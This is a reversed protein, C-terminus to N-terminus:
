VKWTAAVEWPRVSGVGSLRVQITAGFVLMVEPGEPLTVEVEALKLKVELLFPEVKV